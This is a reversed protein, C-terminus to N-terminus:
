ATVVRYEVIDGSDDNFGWAMSGARMRLFARYTNGYARLKVEVPQEAAVPMRGGNWKIWDGM